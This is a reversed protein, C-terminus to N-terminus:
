YTTQGLHRLNCWDSRFYVGRKPSQPWCCVTVINGALPYTNITPNPYRPSHSALLVRKGHKQTPTAQQAVNCSWADSRRFTELAEKKNQFQLIRSGQSQRRSSQQLDIDVDHDLDHYATLPRDREHTHLTRPVINGKM